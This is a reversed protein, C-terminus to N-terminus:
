RGQLAGAAESIAKKRVPPAAGKAIKMSKQMVQAKAKAEPSTFEDEKVKGEDEGEGYEGAKAKGEGGKMARALIQAKQEEHRRARESHRRGSWGGLSGGALAGLGAGAIGMLPSGGMRRSLNLGALGGGIGGALGGLVRGRSAEEEPDLSPRYVSVPVAGYGYYAEKQLEQAVEAHQRAVQRAVKDMFRLKASSTKGLDKVPQASATKTVLVPKVEEPRPPLPQAVKVTAKGCAIELLDAPDMQDFTAELDQGEKVLVEEDYTEKLWQDLNV